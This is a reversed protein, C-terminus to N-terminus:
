NYHFLEQLQMQFCTVSLLSPTKVYPFLLIQCLPPPSTHGTTCSLMTMSDQIYTKTMIKNIWASHM